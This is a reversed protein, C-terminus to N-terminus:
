WPIYGSILKRDGSTECNYSPGARKKFMLTSARNEIDPEESILYCVDFRVHHEPNSARFTVVHANVSMQTVIFGLTTNKNLTMINNM